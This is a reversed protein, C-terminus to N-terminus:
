LDEERTQGHQPQWLVLKSAAQEKAWCLAGLLMICLVVPLIVVSKFSNICLDENLEM